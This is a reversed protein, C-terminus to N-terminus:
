PCGPKQKQQIHQTEGGTVLDADAPVALVLVIRTFPLLHAVAHGLGLEFGVPVLTSRESM